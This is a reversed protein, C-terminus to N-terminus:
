RDNTQVEEHKPNVMSVTTQHLTQVTVRLGTMECYARALAEDDYESYNEVFDEERITLIYGGPTWLQLTRTQNVTASGIQKMAM